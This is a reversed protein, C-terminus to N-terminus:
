RNARALRSQSRTLMEILRPHRRIWAVNAATMPPGAPVETVIDVTLNLADAIAAIDELKMPATGRLIRGLRAPKIGVQTAARLITLDANAM